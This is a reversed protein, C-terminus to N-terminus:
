APPADANGEMSFRCSEALGEYAISHCTFILIQADQAAREMIRLAARQRTRDTNVLPDDLIVCQRDGGRGLLRALALRILLMLQERTGYSLDDIAAQVGDRAAPQVATPQLHDDFDVYDYSPGIMEQMSTLVISRVPKLMAEFVNRKHKQLTENLLSIAEADRRARAYRRELADMREAAEVYLSYLGKGGAQKVEQELSGIRREQRSREQRLGRATAELTEVDDALGEVPPREAGDLRQNAADMAQRSETLNKRRQEVTLGDEEELRRVEDQLHELVARAENVGSAAESEQKRAKELNKALDGMLAEAGELAQGTEEAADRAEQTVQKAASLDLECRDLGADEALLGAREAEIQTVQEALADADEAEDMQEELQRVSHSMQERRFALEELKGLDAEGFPSSERAWKAKLDGLEEALTAADSQGARITLRGVDAIHLGMNSLARLETSEDIKRPPQAEGDADVEITLEHEPELRITLSAADVEAQKDAVQRHLKRLAKLAKADPAVLEELDQRAGELQKPQKRSRELRKTLDAMQEGATLWRVVREASKMAKEAHRLDDRLQECIARQKDHQGLIEELPESAQKHIEQRKQLDEEAQSLRGRAEAIRNVHDNLSQWTAKTNRAESELREYERQSAQLSDLEKRAASLDEEAQRLENLTQQYADETSDLKHALDELENRQRKLEKVQRSTDEYQEQLELVEAKNAQGSRLRGGPTYTERYRDAIAQEISEGQTSDLTIELAERLRAQQGNGVELRAASGQQAWLVQGLGWHEPKSLGRGTQDGFVLETIKEDATRGQSLQEWTGERHVSLEAHPDDLFRKKLRYRQGAESFEITVTPGLTSGWPQRSKMVDGATNHRDYFGRCIADMITTKGVENPGYIVNVGDSLPGIEVPERLKRWNEVSIRHLIM